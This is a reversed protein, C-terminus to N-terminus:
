LETVARELYFKAPEVVAYRKGTALQVWVDYVHPTITLGSTDAPVLYIEAVGPYTSQDLITIESPTGSDKDILASAADITLKVRFYVTAGTLNVEDGDEDSVTVRLTKNVGRIVYLDQRQIAM